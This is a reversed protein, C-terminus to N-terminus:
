WPISSNFHRSIEMPKPISTAVILYAYALGLVFPVLHVSPYANGEPM